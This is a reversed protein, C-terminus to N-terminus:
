NLKFPAIMTFEPILVDFTTETDIKKFEYSGKMKGISSKFNCGSTYEHSQGPELTPRQGVVGEGNVERIIGCSDFIEWNRNLLQITHPSNNTIKIRYGFVFHFQEPSSYDQMYKTAVAVEVGETIHTITEKM